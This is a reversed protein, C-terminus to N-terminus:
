SADVTASPPCHACSEGYYSGCTTEGSSPAPMPVAYPALLTALDGRAGALRYNLQTTTTMRESQAWSVCRTLVRAAGIQQPDLSLRRHM